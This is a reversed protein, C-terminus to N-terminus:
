VALTQQVEPDVSLFQETQLDYYRGVGDRRSPGEGPRRRCGSRRQVALHRVGGSAVHSRCRRTECAMPVM